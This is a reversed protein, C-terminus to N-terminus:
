RSQDFEFRKVYISKLGAILKKAQAEEPKGASLFKAALRFCTATSTSTWQRPPTPASIPRFSSRRRPWRRLALLLLSAGRPISLM